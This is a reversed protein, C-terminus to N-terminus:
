KGISILPFLSGLIEVMRSLKASKTQFGISILPFSIVWPM